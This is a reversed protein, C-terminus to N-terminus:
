PAEQAVDITAGDELGTVEDVAVRESSALGSTVEVWRDERRGVQVERVRVVPGDCVVVELREGGASRVSVAPVTVIEHPESTAISATGLLGLPIQLAGPDLALWVQGMGNTGVSRGVTRVSAAVEVGDLGQFRVRALQGRRIHVLDSPAATAALELTSMDVVDCIPTVPTGDVLEGERRQLHVIAGAMPAHVATRALGERAAHVQASAASVAAEARAQAALLSELSRRSAIGKEVLAQEHATENRASNRNAIAEEMMAQAQELADRAPQPEIEAILAGAEVDDGERVALRVVRGPVQASLTASRDPAPVVTGRLVIEDAL